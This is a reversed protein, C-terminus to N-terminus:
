HIGVVNTNKGRHVQLPPHLAITSIPKVQKNFCVICDGPRVGGLSGVAEDDVVLETLRKYTRVEMEEGTSIMIERVLDVAAAQLLLFIVKM